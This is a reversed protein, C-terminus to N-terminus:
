PGGRKAINGIKFCKYLNKYTLVSGPEKKFTRIRMM